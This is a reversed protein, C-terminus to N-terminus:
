KMQNKIFEQLIAAEVTRGQNALDLMQQYLQRLEMFPIVRANGQSPKTPFAAEAIAQDLTTPAPATPPPGAVATTVPTQFPTGAVPATSVTTPVTSVPVPAQEARLIAEAISRENAGRMNRPLTQVIASIQDELNPVSAPIPPVEVPLSPPSKLYQQRLISISEEPLDERALKKPSDKIVASTADDIFEIGQKILPRALRGVRRMASGLIQGRVTTAASLGGEPAVPVAERGAIQRAEELRSEIGARFERINGYDRYPQINKGSSLKVIDDLQDALENRITRYAVAEPSLKDVLRDYETNLERLVRQGKVPSIEGSLQQFVPKSLIAQLAEPQDALSEYVKLVESEGRALMFDGKMAFGSEEASKLFDKAEDIAITEAKRAAAVTDKATKLVKGGSAEIIRPPAQELIEGLKGEEVGRLLGTAKEITPTSLGRATMRSVVSPTIAQLGESVARTAVQPIREIAAAPPFFEGGIEGLAGATPERFTAREVSPGVGLANELTIPADTVAQIGRQLGSEVSGPLLQRLTGLPTGPMSVLGLLSGPLGGIRELAGEAAAEIQTVPRGTLQAALPGVPGLTSIAAQQVPTFRDTAFRPIAPLAPTPPASSPSINEIAALAEAQTPERDSDIEFTGQDTNIEYVPM